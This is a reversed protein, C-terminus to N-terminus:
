INDSYSETYRICTVYIEPIGYKDWQDITQCTEISSKNNERSQPEHCIFLLHLYLSHGCSTFSNDLRNFFTIKHLKEVNMYAQQLIIVLREKQRSSCCGCLTRTSIPIIQQFPIYM